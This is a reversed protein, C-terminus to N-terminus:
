QNGGRRQNGFAGAVGGGAGGGLIGAGVGVGIPAQVLVQNNNLTNNLSNNLISVPIDVDVDGVTVTALGGPIVIVQGAAVTDLQADTMQQPKGRQGDQGAFATGASALAAIAILTGIRKM